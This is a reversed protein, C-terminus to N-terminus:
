EAYDNMMPNDLVKTWKNKLRKVYFNFLYPKLRIKLWEIFYFADFLFYVNNKKRVLHREKAHNQGSAGGYFFDVFIKDVHKFKLGALYMRLFLDWDAAISFSVDFAGINIVAERRCVSSPHEVVSTRKLGSVTEPATVKKTYLEGDLTRFHFADGYICDYDPFKLIANLMEAVTNPLLCDDSNAYCIWTGNAHMLGKNMADYIGNDKESILKIGYREKYSDIIAYTNDISAGDVIIYEVEDTLQTVISRICKEITKESNYCITIISLLPAHQNISSM